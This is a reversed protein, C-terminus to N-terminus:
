NLVLQGTVKIMDAFDRKGKLRVNDPCSITVTRAKPYSIKLALKLIRVIVTNMKRLEKLENAQLAPLLPVRKNAVSSCHGYDVSAQCGLSTPSTLTCNYVKDEQGRSFQPEKKKRQFPTRYISIHFILGDAM